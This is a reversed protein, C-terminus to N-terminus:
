EPRKLQFTGHDYKSRYTSFFRDPSVRGEYTYVGGALRGLDADGSFHFVGNTHNGIFTATYGFSLIKRYKARFRAEYTHADIPTLLCRLKDQHGSAESVWTGEWRGAVGATAESRSARNWDRQFSSCGCVMLVPVVLCLLRLRKM